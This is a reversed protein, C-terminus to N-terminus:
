AATGLRSAVSARTLWWGVDVSGPPVFPARADLRRPRGLLWRADDRVVEALLEAYPARSAAGTGFGFVLEAGLNAAVIARARLTRGYDARALEGAHASLASLIQVLREDDFPAYLSALPLEGWLAWMWWRPPDGPHAELARRCARGVLEHGPHRDHPTPSLVLQPRADRLRATLQGVLTEEARALDDGASMALPPELADLEFGARACAATLEALRRAQQDPRGLGCAVNVVRWGADRLAMLTAPAGLLEDDPHPALHLVVPREAM